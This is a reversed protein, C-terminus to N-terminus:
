FPLDFCFMCGRHLYFMLGVTICSCICTIIIMTISWVIYTKSITVERVEFSYAFIEMTSLIIVLISLVAQGIATISLCKYFIKHTNVTQNLPITPSESIGTEFQPDLLSM